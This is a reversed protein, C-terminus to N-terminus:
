FRDGPSLRRHASRAREGATSAAYRMLMSRSRWGALQMLDTEQGGSSLWMHSFTHRFLHPHAEMGAQKARRRIIQYVGNPTLPTGTRGLWFNPEEHGNRKARERRYRDVAQATRAGMSLVRIRSGKGMVEIERVKLDVDALKMGSLESRRMGTDLLVRIIANDRVEDFERGACTKLLKKVEEDTFVPPPTEPISPPHLNRMPNSEIEEEKVLWKFFAQISRYRNNATAPKFAALQEVMWGEIDRARVEEVEGSHGERILYAHFIRAASLYADLTKPSKRSSLLSLEFSDVLALYADSM